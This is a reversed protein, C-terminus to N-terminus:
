VRNSLRWRPDVRLALAHGNLLFWRLVPSVGPAVHLSFILPNVTEFSLDTLAPYVIDTRRVYGAVTQLWRMAAYSNDVFSLSQLGPRCGALAGDIVGPNACRYQWGHCLESKGSFNLYGVSKFRAFCAQVEVSPAVVGCPRRDGSLVAELHPRVRIWGINIISVVVLACVARFQRCVAPVALLLERDMGRWQLLEFIAALVTGPLTLIGWTGVAAIVVVNAPKLSVLKRPTTELFVAVRGERWKHRPGVAGGLGNYEPSKALGTVRVAAGEHLAAADTKTSEPNTPLSDTGASITLM